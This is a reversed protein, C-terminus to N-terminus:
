SNKFQLFKNYKSSYVKFSKKDPYYTKGGLIFRKLSSFGRNKIIALIAAGRGASEKVHPVKIKVGTINALIQPLFKNKAGGGIMVLEKVGNSTDYCSTGSRVPNVPNKIRQRIRGLLDAKPQYIRDFLLM